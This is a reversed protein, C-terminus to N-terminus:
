HCTMTGATVSYSTFTIGTFTATFASGSAAVVISGSQAINTANYTVYVQNAAPSTTVVSYTGANPATVFTLAITNNGGDNGTWTTNNCSPGNTISFTTSNSLTVNGYNPNPNNGTTTGSTTVGSTTTYPLGNPNPNGGTGNKTLAKYTVGTNGTDDKTCSMIIAVCVVAISSITFLAKKM